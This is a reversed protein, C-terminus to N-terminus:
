IRLTLGLFKPLAGLARLPSFQRKLGLLIFEKHTLTRVEILSLM